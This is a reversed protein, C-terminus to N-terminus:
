DVILRVRASPSDASTYVKLGSLRANGTNLIVTELGSLVPIHDDVALAAGETGQLAVKGTGTEFM